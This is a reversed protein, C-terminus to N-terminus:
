FLKPGNEFRRGCSYLLVTRLERATLAAKTRGPQPLKVLGVCGPRRSRSSPAEPDTPKLRGQHQSRYSGPVTHTRRASIRLALSSVQVYGGKEVMLPATNRCQSPPITAKDPHGSLPGIPSNSCRWLELDKGGEQRPLVEGHQPRIGTEGGKAPYGHAGPCGGM